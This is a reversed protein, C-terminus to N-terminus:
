QILPTQVRYFRNAGGPPQNTVWLVRNTPLSPLSVLNNWGVAVIDDRYVVSYTKNSVAPFYFSVRGDTMPVPPLILKLVSAANTPNTDAQYEELNTRGDGDADDEPRSNDGALGNTHGFYNTMWRDPMGDHDADALVLLVVAPKFDTGGDNEVVVQYTVSSTVNTVLLTPQTNTLFNAGGRLWRYTLPLAPHVPVAWVSFSVSGGSVVSQAQIPVTITPKTLLKLNASSSMLSGVANAVRVAYPGANDLSVNSVVLTRTTAWPLNTGWFQWQYALPGLGLARVALTANSTTTTSTVPSPVISVNAPQQVIMPTTPPNLLFLIENQAFQVANDSVTAEELLFSNVITRGSSAIVIAAENTTSTSTFGAVAVGEPLAVLKLGDYILTDSLNLPSGVGDFFPTAGWDYVPMATSLSSGVAV